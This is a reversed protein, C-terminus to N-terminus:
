LFTFIKGPIVKPSATTTDAGNAEILCRNALVNSVLLRMLLLEILVRQWHFLRLLWWGTNFSGKLPM